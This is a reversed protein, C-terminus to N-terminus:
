NTMTGSIARLSLNHKHRRVCRSMATVDCRFEDRGKGAVGFWKGRRFVIFRETGEEIAKAIRADHQEALRRM